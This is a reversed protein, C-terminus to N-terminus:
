FMKGEKLENKSRDVIIEEEDKLTASMSNGDLCFLACESAKLQRTQLWAREVKAFNAKYYDGNEAGM